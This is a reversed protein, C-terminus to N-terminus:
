RAEEYLGLGEIGAQELAQFEREIEENIFPPSESIKDSGSYVYNGLPIGVLNKDTMVEVVYFVISPQGWQDSRERLASSNIEKTIM